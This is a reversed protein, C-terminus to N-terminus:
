LLPLDLAIQYGHPLPFSQLLTGGLRKAREEMNRLGRGKGKAAANGCGSGNDRIHLHLRGADVVITVTVRSAASHKIANSIAERLIRGLNLAQPQTLNIACAQGTQCWELQLGAESLRQECEARWDATIEELLFTDASTRSVVDRLDQLAARALEADDPTGARYVLSLLKAGVDDHLDRYIREREETIAHETELVRMRAFTHELQAHKEQVRAELQDSLTEIENLAQVFRSTMILGIALFVAPASYHLLHVDWLPRNLTGLWFQQSHLLWDHGALVVVISMAVVLVRAARNGQTFAARLLLGLTAAAGILTVLHWFATLAMFYAAPTLMLSAPALVASALLTRSLLKGDIRAYRLLSVLLLASLVTFCAHIFIEWAATPVPIDQLYLNTSQLAWLVGAVGFYGYYSDRRRRWWLNLMLLSISAILVGSIQNLTIHLFYAHEFLPRLVREPGIMVPHLSAQTYAHNRLHIYLTNKGARLQIPPLLFLLPRNWNRAVPEDFRGGDGIPVGNLYVAANLGLKPLYVAHLADDPPRTFHIRYWGNGQAQPHNVRWSDPLTQQRWAANDGPPELADDLIFETDRLEQTQPPAAWLTTPLLFIGLLLPQFFRRMPQCDNRAEDSSRRSNFIFIVCGPFIAGAALIRCKLNSFLHCPDPMAVASSLVGARAHM